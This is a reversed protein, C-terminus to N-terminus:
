IARDAGVDELCVERRVVAHAREVFGDDVFETLRIDQEAVVADRPRREPGRSVHALHAYLLELLDPARVGPRMVKDTADRAFTEHTSVRSTQCSAWDHTGYM